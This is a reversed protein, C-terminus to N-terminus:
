YVYILASWFLMRLLIVDAVFFEPNPWFTQNMSSEFLGNQLGALTTGSIEGGM